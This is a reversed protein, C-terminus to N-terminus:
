FSFNLALGRTVVECGRLRDYVRSFSPISPVEQGQGVASCLEVKTLNQNGCGFPKVGHSTLKWCRHGLM